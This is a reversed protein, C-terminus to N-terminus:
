RVKRIILEYTFPKITNVAILKYIGNDIGPGNIRIHVTKHNLSLNEPNFDAPNFGGDAFAPTIPSISLDQLQFLGGSLAVQEQKLSQVRPAYGDLTQVPLSSVLSSTAEGFSTEGTTTTIEISVSFERLGLKGPISRIKDLSPLLSSRLSMAYGSSLQLLGLYDLESFYTSAPSIFLTPFGVTVSGLYSADSLLQSALLAAQLSGFNSEAASTFAGTISVPGSALVISGLYNAGSIDQTGNLRADILGLNHTGSLFQTTSLRADISGLNNSGTIEQTASLSASIFGLNNVGSIEQTTSLRAAISGLNNNDSIFQTASLRASIFGLNNSGSLEQAALLRVVISGLYTNNSLEQVGTITIISDSVGFLAHESIAPLGDGSNRLLYSALSRKNNSSQSGYLTM